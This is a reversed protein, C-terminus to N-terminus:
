NILLDYASPFPYYLRYTTTRAQRVFKLQQRPVCTTGVGLERPRLQLKKAEDDDEHTSYFVNVVNM